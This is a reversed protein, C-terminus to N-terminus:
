VITACTCDAAWGDVVIGALTDVGEGDVSVTGAVNAEGRCVVDVGDGSTAAVRACTM